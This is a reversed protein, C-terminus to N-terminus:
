EIKMMMNYHALHGMKDFIMKFVDKYKEVADVGLSIEFDDNISHSGDNIWYLLSKTIIQEERNMGSFIRKEIDTATGIIGFYNEIIRRMVNQISVISAATGERIESWLLEYNTKIPNEMGYAKIKSVNDNKYIIWFNRTKKNATRGNIHSIEKHFFVNHTLVFLQEVDNKNNEVSEILDKVMTGVIFLVSSDLSCIPDDLVVVKKNSVNNRDVAGKTLQMFYLFTILM